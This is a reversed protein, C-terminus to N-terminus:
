SAKQKGLSKWQDRQPIPNQPRLDPYNPFIARLLATSEEVNLAESNM